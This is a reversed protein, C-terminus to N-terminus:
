KRVHATVHPANRRAILTFATLTKQKFNAVSDAETYTCM